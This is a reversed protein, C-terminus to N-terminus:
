NNEGLLWQWITQAVPAADRSGERYPQEEDSEVLVVIVLSDPFGHAQVKKLWTQRELQLDRDAEATVDVAVSKSETNVGLVQLEPALLQDLGGVTMGFWAHTKRYGREDEGGFEATGTKCAVVGSDILKNAPLNQELRSTQQQNWSFFPYATGGTSCAEIMGQEVALLHAESVGISSCNVAQSDALLSPKCLHGHNAFVQLMQAQQLPTVLLDGQGIGLHFTNGLFWKEGLTKEKWSPNPVLGAREGALEIGTSQGFGMLEAQKVLNDVGLLEAAKYFYTDNSRAIARVLSILGETRGFQTYYWNAYRYEGVELIGQDDVETTTDFAGSELGALATVLKFISGPPYTGQVSRNFFLRKEDALAFRLESLKTEQETAINSPSFLNSDFAPTSVLALVKGTEPDLIVVSGTKDGMARWAVTSLYPDLSTQLNRGQVPPEFKAETLKKGLANIEYERFGKRGKVLDNFYSELGARGVSDTLKYQNDQQLDEATVGTVYGLVHAMSFPRLYQRQLSYNVSFPQTITLELAQDRTIPQTHPYLATPESIQHYARQNVVLLDGYRDLFVGREAPIETRFLRN